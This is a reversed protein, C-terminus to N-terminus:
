FRTGIRFGYSVLAGEEAEASLVLVRWRYSVGAYALSSTATAPDLNVPAGSPAIATSTMTGVGVYPSLAGLRRSVAIDVSANGVWVDKSGVLSSM